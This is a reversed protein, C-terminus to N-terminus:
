PALDMQADIRLGELDPRDLDSPAPDPVPGHQRFQQRLDRGLLGDALDRGVPGIVGPRTVGGDRGPLGAGDDWGAAVGLGPLVGCGAGLRAVLAERAVFRRPRVMRRM